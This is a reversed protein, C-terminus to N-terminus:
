VEACKASLAHVRATSMSVWYQWERQSACIGLLTHCTFKFPQVQLETPVTKLASELLPILSKAAEEPADAYSSLGPKLQEFTDSQLDLKGGSQMFRYIHVRSGASGFGCTLAKEAHSCAAAHLIRVLARQSSLLRRKKQALSLEQVGAYTFSVRAAPM